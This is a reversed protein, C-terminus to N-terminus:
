SDSWSLYSYMSLFQVLCRVQSSYTEDLIPSIGVAFSENENGTVIFYQLCVKLEDSYKFGDAILAKFVPKYTLTWFEQFATPCTLPPPIHTFGSVLFPSLAHLNAATPEINCLGQLVSCYFSAIYENYQIDGLVEEADHLWPLLGAQLALLRSLMLPPSTARLFMELNRILELCREFQVRKEQSSSRKPAHQELVNCTLKFLSSLASDNEQEGLGAVVPPEELLEYILTLAALTGEPRFSPNLHSLLLIDEFLRSVCGYGDSSLHPGIKSVVLQAPLGVGSALEFARRAMSRWAKELKTWKVGSPICNALAIINDWQTDVKRCAVAACEWVAAWPRTRAVSSDNGSSEPPPLMMSPPRRVPTSNSNEEVVANVITDIVNSHADELAYRLVQTVNDRWLACAGNENLDEQRSMSVFAELMSLAFSAPLAGPEFIGTATGFLSYPVALRCYQQDRTGIVSPSAWLSPSKFLFYGLEGVIQCSLEEKEETTLDVSKRATLFISWLAQITKQNLDSNRSLGLTRSHATSVGTPLEKTEVGEKLVQRWCQILLPWHTRIEEADLPRIDVAQVCENALINRAAAHYNKRDAEMSYLASGNLISSCALKKYNWVFRESRNIAASEPSITDFAALLRFFINIEFQVKETLMCHLIQIGVSVSEQDSGDGICAGVCAVGVPHNLLAAQAVSTIKGGRGVKAQRMVTGHDDDIGYGEIGLRHGDEWAYVLMSWLARSILKIGPEKKANLGTNMCSLITKLWRKHGLIRYGCIAIVSGLVTVGWSAESGGETFAAELVQALAPSSQLVAKRLLPLDCEVCLQAVSGFALAAKFKLAATSPTALVALLFPFISPIYPHFSAYAPDSVTQLAGLCEWIAGKKGERGFDGRLGRSIIASINAAFPSVVNEPLHQVQLVASALTWTKRPNPTPLTEADLISLVTALLERLRTEPCM